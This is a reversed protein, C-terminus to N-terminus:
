PQRVAPVPVSQEAQVAANLRQLEYLAAAPSRLLAPNRELHLLELQTLNRVTVEGDIKMLLVSGVQIM